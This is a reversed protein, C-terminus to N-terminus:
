CMFRIYVCFNISDCVFVLLCFAVRVFHLSVIFTFAFLTFLVIRDPYRLLLSCCFPGAVSLAAPEPTLRSTNRADARLTYAKPHQQQKENQKSEQWSGSGVRMETTTGGQM